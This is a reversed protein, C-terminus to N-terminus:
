STQKNKAKARNRARAKIMDKPMRVHKEIHPHDWMASVTEADIGTIEVAQVATYHHDKLWSLRRRDMIRDAKGKAYVEHDVKRCREILSTREREYFLPDEVMKVMDNLVQEYLTKFEPGTPNGDYDEVYDEMFQTAYSPLNIIFAGNKGDLEELNDRCREHMHTLYGIRYSPAAYINIEKPKLRYVSAIGISLWQAVEAAKRGENYLDIILEDDITKGRGKYKGAAKAANM